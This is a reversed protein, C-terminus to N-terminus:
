FDCVQLPQLSHAECASPPFSFHVVLLKGAAKKPTDACTSSFSGEGNWNFLVLM